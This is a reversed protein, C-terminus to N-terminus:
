CESEEIIIFQYPMGSTCIELHPCTWLMWVLDGQNVHPGTVEDALDSFTLAKRLAKLDAARQNARM